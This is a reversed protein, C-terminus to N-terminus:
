DTCNQQKELYKTPTIGFTKKFARTFNPTDNYGCLTAVETVNLEPHHDLLHRARRMRIIQIFSQPTEGVIASLRNRFQFLSMNLRDAVSAADAQGANLQENIINITNELFETDAQSLQTNEQEEGNRTVLAKDYHVQLQKYKERLEQIDTSLQQNIQNQQQHRCHMAYWIGAALILLLLTSTLGIVIARNKAQRESEKETRLEDTGFEANFRALSEATSNNYISDKMDNFREMEIRASDPAFELLSEYIGRQAHLENYTDHLQKFISRAEKFYSLAKDSQKMNLLALGMKNCSIGLSQRNGNARFVPIAEELLQRAQEYRKLGILAAAKQSKRINASGERGLRKELQYSEDAFQVALEDNGLSHYVESAMGLLVAKHKPDNKEDAMDLAKVIYKEAEQSQKAAMYIGALLNLSYSIRNKDGTQQDLKYCQKAYIIAMEYKTLRMHSIALLNLCDAEEESNKRTRLLPLAKQCYKMSELYQQQAFYYEGAWYWVEQCISDHPTSADFSYSDSVGAKHFVKFLNNATQWNASREFNSLLSDVSQASV